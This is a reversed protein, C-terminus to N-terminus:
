LAKGAAAQGLSLEELTKSEKTVRAAGFGDQLEQIRRPLKGQIDPADGPLGEHFNYFVYNVQDSLKGAIELANVQAETLRAADVVFTFKGKLNEIKARVTQKHKWAAVEKIKKQVAPRYDGPVDGKPQVSSPIYEVGTGEEKPLEKQPSGKSHPEPDPRVKGASKVPPVRRGSEGKGVGDIRRMESRNSSGSRGTPGSAASISKIRLGVCEIEGDVLRLTEFDNYQPPPNGRFSRLGNWLKRLESLEPQGEHKGFSRPLLGKEFRKIDAKYPQGERTAAFQNLWDFADARAKEEFDPVKLDRYLYTMGKLLGHFAVSSNSISVPLAAGLRFTQPSIKVRDPQMEEHAQLTLLAHIFAPITVGPARKRVTILKIDFSGDSNKRYIFDGNNVAVDSPTVGTRSRPDYEFHYVIAAIIESLIEANKGPDFAKYPNKQDGYEWRRLVGNGFNLEEYGHFFEHVSLFFPFFPISSVILSKVRPVFRSRGIEHYYKFNNANQRISDVTNLFSATEIMWSTPEGNILIPFVFSFSGAKFAQLAFTVPGAFGLDKLIQQKMFAIIQLVAKQPVYTDGQQSILWRPTILNEPKKRTEPRSLSYQQLQYRNIDKKEFVGADRLRKLIPVITEVQASFFDAIEAESYGYKRRDNEFSNVVAATALYAIVRSELDEMVLVPYGLGALYQFGPSFVKSALLITGNTKTYPLGPGDKFASTRNASVSTVYFGKLLLWQTMLNDFYDDDAGVYFLGEEKLLALGDNVMELFNAPWPANITVFDMSKEGREKLFEENSPLRLQSDSDTAFMEVRFDRKLLKHVDNIFYFGEEGTGLDVGSLEKRGSFHERMLDSFSAADEPWLTLEKMLSFWDKFHNVKIPGTKDR